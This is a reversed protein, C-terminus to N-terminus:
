KDRPKTQQRIDIAEGIGTNVRCKKLALYHTRIFFSGCELGSVTKQFTDFTIVPGNAFVPFYFNFVLLDMLSYPKLPKDKETERSRWCYDMGFSICRLISMMSVFLTLNKIQPDTSLRDM